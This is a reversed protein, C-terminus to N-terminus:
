LNLRRGQVEKKKKKEKEVKYKQPVNQNERSKRIIKQFLEDLEVFFEMSIKTPITKGRHILRSLCLEHINTNSM